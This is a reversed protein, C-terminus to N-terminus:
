ASGLGVAILLAAALLVIGLGACARLALQPGRSNAWVEVDGGLLWALLLVTGTGGLVVSIM